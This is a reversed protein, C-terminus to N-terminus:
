EEAEEYRSAHEQATGIHRIEKAIQIHHHRDHSRQEPGAVANVSEPSKRSTTDDDTGESKRNAWHRYTIESQWEMQAIVGRYQSAIPSIIYVIVFKTKIINTM